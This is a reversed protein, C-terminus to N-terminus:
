KAQLRRIEAVAAQLNMGGSGANDHNTHNGAM